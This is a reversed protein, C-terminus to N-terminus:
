VLDNVPCGVAFADDEQRATIGRVAPGLAWECDANIATQRLWEGHVLTTQEGIRRVSRLDGVVDDKSIEAGPLTIGAPECLRDRNVVELVIGAFVNRMGIPSVSKRHPVAVSDVEGRVASGIM